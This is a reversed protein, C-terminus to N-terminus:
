SRADGCGALHRSTSTVLRPRGRCGDVHHVETDVLHDGDHVRFASSVEVRYSLGMVLWPGVVVSCSSSASRRSGFAAVNAEPTEDACCCVARRADTRWSPASSPSASVRCSPASSSARTSCTRPSARSGSSSSSRAGARRADVRRRRDHQGAGEGGVELEDVDGLLQVAPLLDGGDLLARECRCDAPDALRQLVAAEVAVQEHLRHQGPQLVARDEGGVGGLRGTAGHERGAACSRRRRPRRSSGRRGGGVPRAGLPPQGLQDVQQPLGVLQADHAGLRGVLGPGRDVVQARQGGVHDGVQELLEVALQRRDADGQGEVRPRQAEARPGAAVAVAVGVDRGLDGEVHEAQLVEGAERTSM